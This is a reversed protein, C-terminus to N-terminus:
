LHSVRDDRCLYNIMWLILTDLGRGLDFQVFLNFLLLRFALNESKYNKLTEYIIISDM